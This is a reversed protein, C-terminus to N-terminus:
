VVISSPRGNAESVRSISSKADVDM